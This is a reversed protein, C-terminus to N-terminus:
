VHKYECIYYCKKAAECEDHNNLIENAARAILLGFFLKVQM